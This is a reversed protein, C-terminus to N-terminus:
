VVIVAVVVAAIVIPILPIQGGGNGSSSAATTTVATTTEAAATTEAATTTTAETTTTTVVEVVECNTVTFKTVKMVIGCDGLHIADVTTFDDSGYALVMDEYSFSASTEDFEYPAIKAWIAPDATTYNHFILEVPAGNGTWESDLEFEVKVESEPTIRSCDFANKDYTVSQGWSGSTSKALATNFEVDETEASACVAMVAATIFTVAATVATKLIKKM